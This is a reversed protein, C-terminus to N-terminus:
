KRKIFFAVCNSKEDLENFPIEAYKKIGTKIFASLIFDKEFMQQYNKLIRYYLKTRVATSGAFVIKINVKTSTFEKVIEIVNGLVKIMDGNNSNAKDDIDGEPLLDGYALNFVGNISTPTFQVIKTIVGRRGKSVFSYSVQNQKEYKYPPTGMFKENM